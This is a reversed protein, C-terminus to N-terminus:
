FIILFYHLFSHIFSCVCLKFFLPYISVMFYFFYLNGILLALEFITTHRHTSKQHCNPETNFHIPFGFTAPPLTPIGRRGRVGRNRSYNSLIYQNSSQIRFARFHLM